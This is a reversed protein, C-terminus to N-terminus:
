TVFVRHLAVLRLQVAVLAVGAGDGAVRHKDVQNARFCRSSICSVPALQIGNYTASAPIPRIRSNAVDEPRRTTVAVM